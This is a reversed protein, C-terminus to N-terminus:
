LDYESGYENDFGLMRQSRPLARYASMASDPSAAVPADGAYKSAMSSAAMSGLGLVGKAVGTILTSDAQSNLASRRAAGQAVETEGQWLRTKAEHRSSQARTDGEYLATDFAYEGEGLIGDLINTDVGAGSAAMVAQARGAFLTSKRKEELAARQSSAQQANAQDELRKAEAQAQQNRLLANQYAAEGAQRQANSQQVSGIISMGTGIVTSAIAVASVVGSM